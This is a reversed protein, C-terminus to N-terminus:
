NKVCHTFMEGGQEEIIKKGIQWYTEVMVFNATQHLKKRAEIILDRAFAYLGDSETLQKIENAMFRFKSFQSCHQLITTCLCHLPLGGQSSLCFGSVGGVAVGWVEECVSEECGYGIDYVCFYDWHAV